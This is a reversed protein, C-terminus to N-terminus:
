KATRGGKVHKALEPKGKKGYRKEGGGKTSIYDGNGFFYHYMERMLKTSKRKEV